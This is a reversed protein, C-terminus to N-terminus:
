EKVFKISQIAGNIEATLIYLGKSFNSIDIKNNALDKYSVVKQGLLSYIIVHDIPQKSNITLVDKVPNPFISIYPIGDNDDISLTSFCDESYIALTDKIWSSYSNLGSSAAIANDVEICSLESNNSADFSTLIENNGNKVNLSNLANNSCYFEVLTTLESLDISELNNDSVDLVSLASFSSNAVTRLQTQRNILIVTSSGFLPSLDTIDNGSLNIETVATFGQLGQIDTIGSNSLDLVGTYAAAENLTIEGDGNTDIANGYGSLATDLNVDSTYITWLDGCDEGFSISPDVNWNSESLYAANEDDVEICTLNPLNQAEIYLMNANNGNKISMYVLPNNSLGYTRLATNSDLNLSEINNNTFWIAELLLNNSVDITSLNTDSCGLVRLATNQSVNLTSLQNTECELEELALNQSVDLSTLLNRQCFLIELDTFAEIGQLSAINSDNVNLETVNEVRSKLTLNNLVGDGMSSADGLAVADGNANHTELYNEFNTDSIFFTGCDNSFTISPDVNWNSESLYAANEDDVEICTLSPLNQAEIYLMNANNGNKISMYVLPNNSLGYTRLATNSDLNLSEINNNTFWIAELLLNNSVDITSLNTDSCGLVRLATNQSVNLTSLQNTECELEELALNQSVDLSTLLNRQCFLIELNTFAEIGQLSAINSDNVNLETVNEVRSKLTLNNLVGDGMSSADGLAVADGNANHTELYNEFNTDIINVLDVSILKFTWFSGTGSEISLTMVSNNDSLVVDYTISQPVNLLDTLNGENNAVALGLFSGQGNLTITGAIDDYVYTANATGDHPFVPVDCQGLTSAGQFEEIWTESGLLNHFSGDMNFVYTDDFFCARDILTQPDNIYWLDSGPEPGFKLAGVEPSIRWSGELQANLSFVCCLTVFILCYYNKM